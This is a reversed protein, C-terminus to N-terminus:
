RVDSEGTPTEQYRSTFVSLVVEVVSGEDDTQFSVGMGPIDAQAARRTIEAAGSVSAGPQLLTYVLWAKANADLGSTAIKDALAAQAPFDAAVLCARYVDCFISVADPVQENESKDQAIHGPPANDEGSRVSIDREVPEETNTQSRKGKSLSLSVSNVV